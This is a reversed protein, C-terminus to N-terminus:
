KYNYVWYCFKNLLEQLIILMGEEVTGRKGNNKRDIEVFRKTLYEMLKGKKFAYIVADEFNKEDEFPCWDPIKVVGDIVDKFTGIINDDPINGASECRVEGGFRRKKRLNTESVPCTVCDGWTMKKM